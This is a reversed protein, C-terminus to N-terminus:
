PYPGGKNNQFIRQNALQIIYGKADFTLNKTLDCEIPNISKIPGKESKERSMTEIRAPPRVINM